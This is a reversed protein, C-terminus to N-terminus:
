EQEGDEGPNRGDLKGTITEPKKQRLIELKFSENQDYSRLIRMLSSPSSPKRGDVTLVVDGGKLGLPSNAPARIVLIGESTGFYSGLDPNLPALELNGLAGGGVFVATAGPSGSRMEWQMGPGPTREFTPGPIKMGEIRGGEPMRFVFSRGDEGMAIVPEDGTVLTVTKRQGSRQLEVKITDNPELKAAMEVLRVGALSEEEDVTRGTAGIVSKGDLRVILDGSQLGAKAAPGGPTVSQVYAGISDTERKELSVSIGLRARRQMLPALRGTMDQGNIWVRVPTREPGTPAPAPAPTKERQQAALPLATAAALLLTSLTRMTVGNTPM